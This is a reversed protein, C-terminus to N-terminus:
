SHLCIFGKKEDQDGNYIELSNNGPCCWYFPGDSLGVINSHQRFGTGTGFIKGSEHICRHVPRCVNGRACRYGGIAIGAMLGQEKSGTAVHIIVFMLIFTLIIKLFFANVIPISPLTTGLDSGPINIFIKLLLSAFIGGAFQAALYPLIQKKDFRGAIYFALTVAPNLHAGSKEGVSHIMSMVVFGFVLSIGTRSVAGQSFNNAVIAGTGAFILMFTAIFEASYKRVNEM